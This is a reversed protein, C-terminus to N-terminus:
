NLQMRIEALRKAIAATQTSDSCVDLYNSLDDDASKIHGLEAHVLGRERLYDAEKPLLVVLRDLVQLSKSWDEEATYIEKLNRLMRALIERPTASQLYFALLADTETADRQPQSRKVLPDLREILEERSLSMGSVPDMVAHGQAIRIKVLFHGPFSVGSAKLGIGQAVELWLVALTVAIGRRRALVATIFSNEPDYYHNVNSAFGLQGYFYQNLVRLRQLPPADLPMRAKVKQVMRDVDALTASMDIDPYQDQAIAAAAELLPLEDDSQVLSAFYELPTPVSISFM